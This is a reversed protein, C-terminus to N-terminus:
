FSGGRFGLGLGSTGLDQSTVRRAEAYVEPKSWFYPMTM